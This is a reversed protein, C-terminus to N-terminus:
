SAGVGISLVTMQEHQASSSSSPPAVVGTIEVLGSQKASLRKVAEDYPGGRKPDPALLWVLSAGTVDLAPKGGREILVGVVTVMADKATFGNDKIIQRLQPLGVRNGPRLTIDASSRELSVTLSQVGELKQLAVRVGHACIACDMGLVALQVRRMEARASVPVILMLMLAAATRFLRTM